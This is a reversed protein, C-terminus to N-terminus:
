RVESSGSGTNLWCGSAQKTSDRGEGSGLRRYCDRNGNLRLATNANDREEDTEPVQRVMLTGSVKVAEPHEIRTLAETAPIAHRGGQQSDVERVRPPGSTCREALMGPLISLRCCCHLKEAM